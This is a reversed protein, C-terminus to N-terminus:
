LMPLMRRVVGDKFIFAHALAGAVHAAILILLVTKLLFHVDGAQPTIYLAAMGTAPLAVLVIYFTYHTARSALKLAPTLSQPAPPAGYTLRLGLRILMLVLIAGGGGAHAMAIPDTPFGALVGADEAKEFFQKMAEATLFQAGVLVVILWHLTIQPKTYADTAIM